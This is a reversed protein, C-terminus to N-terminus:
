FVDASFCWLEGEKWADDDLGAKRCLQILFDQKSWGHEVPVQPLLLSHGFSHKLMLGHQGITIVDGDNLLIPESLVSLEISILNLEDRSLPTFRSDNFAAKKAMHYVTKYLPDETQVIGICGRLIAGIKLTVFVGQTQTFRRVDNSVDLRPGGLEEYISAFCWEKLSSKQSETFM